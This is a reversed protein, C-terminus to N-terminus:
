FCRIWLWFIGQLLPSVKHPFFLKSINQTELRLITDRGYQLSFGIWFHLLWNKNSVESTAGTRSLESFSLVHLLMLTLRLKLRQAACCSYFLVVTFNKLMMKLHSAVFHECSCTAINTTRSTSGRQFLYM